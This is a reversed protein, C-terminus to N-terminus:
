MGFLETVAKASLRPTKDLVYFLLIFGSIEGIFASVDNLSYQENGLDLAKSM